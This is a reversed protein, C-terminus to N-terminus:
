QFHSCENSIVWCGCNLKKKWKKALNNLLLINWHNKNIVFYCFVSFCIFQTWISKKKRERQKICIVIMIIIIITKIYSEHPLYSCHVLYHCIKMRGLVFMMVSYLIVIDFFFFKKCVICSCLWVLFLLWLLHFYFSVHFRFSRNKKEKLYLLKSPFPICAFGVFIACWVSSWNPFYWHLFSIFFFLFRFIFIFPFALM